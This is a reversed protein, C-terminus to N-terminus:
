NKSRIVSRTVCRWAKEYNPTREEKKKPDLEEKEDNNSHDAANMGHIHKDM